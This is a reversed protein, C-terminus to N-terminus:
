LASLDDPVEGFKRLLKADGFDGIAPDGTRRFAIAGVHGAQAFAGGGADCRRQRWCEARRARHSASFVFPCLSCLLDSCVDTEDKRERAPRARAYGRRDQRAGGNTKPESALGFRPRASWVACRSRYKRGSGTSTPPRANERTPMKLTPM